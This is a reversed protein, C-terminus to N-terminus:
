AASGAACRRRCPAEEQAEIQEAQREGEPEARVALREGADQEAGGHVVCGEAVVPGADSFPQAVRALIQEVAHHQAVRRHRRDQREVREKRRVGDVVVAMAALHLCQGIRRM